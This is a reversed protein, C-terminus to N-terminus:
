ELPLVSQGSDNLIDLTTIARHVIQAKNIETFAAGTKDGILVGAAKEEVTSIDSANLDNRPNDLTLTRNDGDAFAAVLKALSTNKVKNAM